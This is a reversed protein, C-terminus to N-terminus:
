ASHYYGPKPRVTTFHPDKRHIIKVQTAALEYDSTVIENYDDSDTSTTTTAAPEDDTDDDSSVYKYTTSVIGFAVLGCLMLSSFVFM